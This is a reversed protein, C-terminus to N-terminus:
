KIRNKMRLATGHVVITLFVIGYLAAVVNLAAIVGFSEVFIGSVLPTITAGAGGCFIIYSVHKHSPRHLLAVGYAVFGNWLVALSLGFISVMLMLGKLDTMKTLQMSSLLGILVATAVFLTLNVKAILLTGVISGILAVGFLRAILEGSQFTTADLYTEAYNPLWIIIIYKGVVVLFLFMGALAVSLNLETKINNGEEHQQKSEFEFSSIVILYLVVILSSAALIYNFGWHMNAALIYAATFPFIVGGINFAADQSLLAVQQHKHKWIKSILTGAICIAMGSLFGIVGLIIPLVTYSTNSVTCIATLIIVVAYILLMIRASMYDLIFFTMISGVFYSGTLWSFQKTVSTLEIDFQGSIPGILLGIITFFGATVLNALLSISTLRLNNTSAMFGM